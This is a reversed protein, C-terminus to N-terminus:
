FSGLFAKAIGLKVTGKEHCCLNKKREEEKRGEEGEVRRKGQLQVQLMPFDGPYPDLPTTAGPRCWLCLLALDLGYRRGVGCSM